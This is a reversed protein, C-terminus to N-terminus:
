NEINNINQNNNQIFNNQNKNKLYKFLGIICLIICVCIGIGVCTIIWMSRNASITYFYIERAPENPDVNWSHLYNGNTDMVVNDADSHFRRSSVSYTYNLSTEQPSISSFITNAYYNYIRNFISYDGFNTTGYYYTKTYFTKEIEKTNSNFTIGNLLEYYKKYVISSKFELGIVYTGNTWDEEIIKIANYLNTYEENTLQQSQYEQVLKNRYEEILNNAELYSNNKITNKVSNINYGHDVIAQEDITLYVYEHITGDDNHYTVFNVNACGCLCFTLLVFMISLIIINFNLRRSKM